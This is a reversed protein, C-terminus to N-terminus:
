VGLHALVDHADAAGALPRRRNEAAGALPALAVAVDEDIGDPARDAREGARVSDRGAPLRPRRNALKGVDLMGLLGKREKEKVALFHDIGAARPFEAAPERRLRAENRM